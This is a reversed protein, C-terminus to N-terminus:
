QNNKKRILLINRQNNNIKEWSSATNLALQHPMEMRSLQHAVARDKEGKHLLELAPGSLTWLRMTADNLKRLRQQSTGPPEVATAPDSLKWKYCLIYLIRPFTERQEVLCFLLQKKQTRWTAERNKQELLRRKHLKTMSSFLLDEGGFCM